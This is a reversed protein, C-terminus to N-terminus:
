KDGVMEKETEEMVSKVIAPYFGKDILTQRVNEAFEKVGDKYGNKYAVETMDHIHMNNRWGKGTTYHSPHNVKDNGELTLKVDNYTNMGIGGEDGRVVLAVTVVNQRM